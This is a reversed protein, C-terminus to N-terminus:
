GTTSARTKIFHSSRVRRSITVSADPAIKILRWTKSSNDGSGGNRNCSVVASPCSHVLKTVGHFKRLCPSM